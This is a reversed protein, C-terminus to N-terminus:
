SKVKFSDIQGQYSLYNATISYYDLVIADMCSYFKKYSDLTSKHPLIKFSPHGLMLPKQDQKQQQKLLGLSETKM